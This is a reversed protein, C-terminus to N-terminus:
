HARVRATHCHVFAQRLNLCSNRLIQLTLATERDPETICRRRCTLKFSLERAAEYYASMKLDREAKPVDGGAARVEELNKEADDRPLLRASGFVVITDEIEMEEFRAEPELYEALIRLPRATRSHIWPLNEYAKVARYRSESM